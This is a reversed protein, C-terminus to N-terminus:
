SESLYKNPFHKRLLIGFKSFYNIEEFRHLANDSTIFHDAKSVVMGDVLAETPREDEAKFPAM